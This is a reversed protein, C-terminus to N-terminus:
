CLLEMTRKNLLSTGNNRRQVRVIQFQVIAENVACLENFANLENVRKGREYVRM